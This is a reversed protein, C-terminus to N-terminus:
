FCDLLLHHKGCKIDNIQLSLRLEFSFLPDKQAHGTKSQISQKRVPDLTFIDSPVKELWMQPSITTTPDGLAV